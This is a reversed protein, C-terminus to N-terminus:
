EDRNEKIIEVELTGLNKYNENGRLTKKESISTIKKGNKKMRKMTLLVWKGIGFEMGTNQNYIRITEM